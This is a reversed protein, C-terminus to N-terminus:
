PNKIASCSVNTISLVEKWTDIRADGSSESYTTICSLTYRTGAFTRTDTAALAPIVALATFALALVASALTRRM